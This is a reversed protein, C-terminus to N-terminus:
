PHDREAGEHTMPADGCLRRGSDGTWGATALGAQCLREVGAEPLQADGSSTQAPLLERRASLRSPLREPLMPALLTARRRSVGLTLLSGLECGCSWWTSAGSAAVSRPRSVGTPANLRTVTGSSASRGTIRGRPIRERATTAPAAVPNRDVAAIAANISPRAWPKGGASIRGCARVAARRATAASNTISLSGFVGERRSVPPREARTASAPAAATTRARPLLLGTRGFRSAEPM